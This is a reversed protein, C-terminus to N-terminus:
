STLFASLRQAERERLAAYVRQRELTQVLTQHGTPV